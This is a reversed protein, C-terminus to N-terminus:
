IIIIIWCILIIFCTEFHFVVLLFSSETLSSIVHIGSAYDLKRIRNNSSDAIFLAGGVPDHTVAKPYCLLASTGLGITYYNVYQAQYHCKRISVVMVQMAAM